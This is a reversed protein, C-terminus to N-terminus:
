IKYLSFVPNKFCLLELFINLIDDSRTLLLSDSFESINNIRLQTLMRM